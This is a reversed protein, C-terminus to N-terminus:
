QFNSRFNQKLREARWKLPRKSTENKNCPMSRIGSAKRDNVPADTAIVVKVGQALLEAVQGETSCGNLFVLQLNPRQGLLRALGNANAVADAMM